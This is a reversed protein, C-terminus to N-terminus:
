RGRASRPCSKQLQLPLKRQRKRGNQGRTSITSILRRPRGHRCAGDKLSLIGAGDGGLRLILRSLPMDPLGGLKTVIRGHSSVTRGHLALQVGDASAIVWLDPMGNGRPRVVYVGGSLGRALLPTFATVTGVRAGAPCEGSTADPVSCIQQLAAANFSLEQPLSMELSRVNADGHRLRMALKMVSNSGHSSDGGRLSLRFRPDFPLRRCRRVNFPGHAPVTLGNSAEITADVSAARCSTPNRVLGPRNMLLQISRFRVPIGEVAVPLADTTVTARGDRNFDAAARVSVAGLDFPGLAPHLHMLLGFPAHRYPGTVYVDGSLPATSSGSGVRGVVQGVASAAPCAGAELAAGECPQIDGLAASLGAPLTMAFRRPLLEGDQRLLTVSFATPAGARAPSSSATLKPAFPIAGPCATGSIRPGIAVSASSYAPAGGGYPDFKASAKATGCALPSALLSDVGGGLQLSLRQIAMQPLDTLRTSLRGTTPDVQMASVFKVTTGRALVSVLMRLKQGPHSEGLYVSGILTEGLAPATFEASGVKSSGPCHPPSTDGLEFQADTCASANQAGGPSITIGEPLTIEVDEMNADAPEDPSGEHPGVVDLRLGTPSDAVPNDMRMELRPTFALTECGELPGGTDTTASLWPAGEEWSRARLTFVAPACDTPATLFARREIATGSQHDAPVGWMEFQGETLALHPLDTAKLSFGFDSPRLESVFPLQLNAKSGFSVLEDAEPELAFFPLTTPAGGATRFMVVGVQSEPACGEESEYLARPCLPVASPDGALGPPLEFILDRLTTGTGEVNFAFSIQLRDPHSGAINEPNGEADLMRATFGGPVIGFEAAQAKAALGLGLSAALGLLALAKSLAM